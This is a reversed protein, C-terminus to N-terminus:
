RVRYSGGASNWTSPPACPRRGAVYAVCIAHQSMPGSGANPYNGLPCCSRGTSTLASQGTWVSRALARLMPVIQLQEEMSIDVNDHLIDAGGYGLDRQHRCVDLVRALWTDSIAEECLGLKAETQALQANLRVVERQLDCVTRPHTGRAVACFLPSLAPM